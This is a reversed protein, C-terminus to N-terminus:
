IGKDYSKVQEFADLAARVQDLEYDTNFDLCDKRQYDLAAGFHRSAETHLAALEPDEEIESQKDILIDSVKEVRTRYESSM